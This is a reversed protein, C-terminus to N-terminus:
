KKKSLAFSDQTACCPTKKKKSLESLDITSSEMGNFCPNKKKKTLEFSNIASIQM